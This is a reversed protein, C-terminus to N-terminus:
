RSYMPRYVYNVSLLRFQGSIRFVIRTSATIGKGTVNQRVKIREYNALNDENLTWSDLHGVTSQATSYPEDYETSVIITDTDADYNAVPHLLPKRIAGDVLFAFAIDLDSSEDLALVYQVERFRKTDNGNKDGIDGTDLFSPADYNNHWYDDGIDHLMTPVFVDPTDTVGNYRADSRFFRGNTRESFVAYLQGPAANYTVGRGIGHDFGATHPGLQSTKWDLAHYYAHQARSAADTTSNTPEPYSTYSDPEEDTGGQFTSGSVINIVATTTGTSNSVTIVCYGQAVQTITLIGDSYECTAVDEDSTSVSLSDTIAIDPYTTVPITRVNHMGDLYLSTVPVFINSYLTRITNFYIRGIVTPENYNVGRRYVTIVTEGNDLGDNYSKFEFTLTKTVESYSTNRLWEEGSSVTIFLPASVATSDSLMAAIHYLTRETLTSPLVSVNHGNAVPSGDLKINYAAASPFTINRQHQGIIHATREDFRGPATTTLTFNATNRDTATYHRVMTADNSLLGKTVVINVHMELTNDFAVTPYQVDDFAIDYKLTVGDYLDLEFAVPIGYPHTDSWSLTSDERRMNTYPNSYVYSEPIDTRSQCDALTTIFPVIPTEDSLNLGTVIKPAGFGCLPKDAKAVISYRKPNYVNQKVIYEYRIDEWDEAYENDYKKLWEINNDCFNDIDYTDIDTSNPPFLYTSYTFNDSTVLEGNEDYYVPVASAENTTNDRLTIQVVPVVRLYNPSYKRHFQREANTRRSTSGCFYGLTIINYYTYQRATIGGRTAKIGYEEQLNNVGNPNTQYWPTFRFTANGAANTGSRFFASEESTAPSKGTLLDSYWYKSDIIDRREDYSDTYDLRYGAVKFDLYKGAFLDAIDSPIQVGRNFCNVAAEIIWHGHEIYEEGVTPTWRASTLPIRWNKKTSDFSFDLGFHSSDGIGFRVTVACLEEDLFTNNKYVSDNSNYVTIDCTAM